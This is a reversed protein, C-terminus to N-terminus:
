KFNYAFGNTLRMNQNLVSADEVPNSDYTMTFQTIVSLNGNVKFELTNNTTFRFDSFNALLPQYYTTNYYRLWDKLTFKFNIYTSMRTNFRRIETKLEDEYELMCTLGYYSKILGKQLFRIRTGAGLLVRQRILQIRDYQNQAFAELVFSTDIMYGYRVHQFANQEFTLNNSLSLNIDNLFLWNHKDKVYQLRVRNSFQYLTNSNQILFFKFDALGQLGQKNDNLRSVEINAIQALSISPCFILIYIFLKLKSM